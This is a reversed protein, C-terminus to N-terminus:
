FPRLPSTHWDEYNGHNEEQDKQDHAYHTEAGHGGFVLSM